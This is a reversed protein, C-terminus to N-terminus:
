EGVGYGFRVVIARAESSRLFTMLARAAPDDAGRTLLVADVAIPAHLQDPVLWRSGAATVGLQSQAILGLEANGTAVLQYAQVASNAIVLRDRLSTYVGLAQLAQVAAAGPAFSPNAIALKSFAGNRLTVEGQVRNNERSFLVLRDRAVTLSTQAVAAHDAVAMRVIAPDSSLLM